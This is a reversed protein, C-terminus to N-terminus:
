SKYTILSLFVQNIALVHTQLVVSINKTKKETRSEYVGLQNLVPEKSETLHIHSKTILEKFIFLMVLGLLAEHRSM